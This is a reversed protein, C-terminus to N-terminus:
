GRRLSWMLEYKLVRNDTLQGQLGWSQSLSLVSHLEPWAAPEQAFSPKAQGEKMGLQTGGHIAKKPKFLQGLLPKLLIEGLAVLSLRSSRTNWPDSQRQQSDKKTKIQHGEGGGGRESASAKIKWINTFGM